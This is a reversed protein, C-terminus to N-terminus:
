IIFCLIFLNCYGSAADCFAVFNLSHLIAYGLFILLLPSFTETKDMIYSLRVVRVELM